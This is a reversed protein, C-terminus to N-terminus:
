KRKGKFYNTLISACEKKLIGSVIGVTHNLKGENLNYLSGCAGAKPDATGYIVRDLRTSLIAGMCMPCPELTVYLDCGSLRWRKLRRSARMIAAMEAHMVASKKREKINHARAIIKGQRVIVCGVPVEDKKQAKEAEVLAARMYIEDNPAQTQSVM